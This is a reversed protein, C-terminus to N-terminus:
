QNRKWISFDMSNWVIEDNMGFISLKKEVFLFYFKILFSSKYVNLSFRNNQIEHFYVIIYWQVFTYRNIIIYMKNDYNRERLHKEINCKAKIWLKYFFTKRIMKSKLFSCLINRCVQQVFNKSFHPKCHKEHIM